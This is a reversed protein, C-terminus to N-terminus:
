IPTTPIRGSVTGAVVSSSRTSSPHKRRRMSPNRPRPAPSLVCTSKLWATDIVLRCWRRSHPPVPYSHGLRFAITFNNMFRQLVHPYSMHVVPSFAPLGHESQLLSRHKRTSLPHPSIHVSSPKGGRNTALIEDIQQPFRVGKGLGHSCDTSLM